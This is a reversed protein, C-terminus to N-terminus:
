DKFAQLLRESEVKVREVDRSSWRPLRRFRLLSVKSRQRTASIRYGLSWYFVNGPRVLELDGDSVDDLYFEAEEEPLGGALDVLRAVFTEEGVTIVYGEWRQIAYFFERPVPPKRFVPKFRHVTRELSERDGVSITERDHSWRFGDQHPVTSSDTARHSEFSSVMARLPQKFADTTQPSGPQTAELEDSRQATPTSM